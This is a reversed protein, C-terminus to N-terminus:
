HRFFFVNSKAGQPFIPSSLGRGEWTSRSSTTARTANPRFPHLAHTVQNILSAPRQPNQPQLHRKPHRPTIGMGSQCFQGRGFNRMTRRLRHRWRLRRQRIRARVGSINSCPLPHPNIYPQTKSLSSTSLISISALPHLKKQTNTARVHPSSALIAATTPSHQSSKLLGPFVSITSKFSAAVQCWRDLTAQSYIGLKELADKGPIGLAFDLDHRPLTKSTEEQVIQVLSSLVSEETDALTGDVDFVIHDFHKM